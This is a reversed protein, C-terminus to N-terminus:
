KETAQRAQLPPAPHEAAEPPPTPSRGEVRGTLLYHVLPDMGSAAVDPNSALYYAPDFFPSPEQKGSAGDTLAKGIARRITAGVGQASDALHEGALILLGEHSWKETALRDKEARLREAELALRDKEASLRGAEDRMRWYVDYSASVLFSAPLNPLHDENAAAIAIYYMTEPIAQTSQEIRDGDRFVSATGEAKGHCPLISSAISLRQGFLRWAPFQAKLLDEFEPGTLEHMHFENLHGQRQSYVETNPSSMVLFGDPRLVRRIEAMMGAQDAVHEITEFSVIVDASHDAFPLSQAGARLFRLNEAQYRSSAHRVASDAIDVGIVHRAAGALIASGFGEGCALDVVDLGSVLGLAWMYRHMHEQRIEGLLEPHYREGTFLLPTPDQTNAMAKVLEASKDPEISAPQQDGSRM